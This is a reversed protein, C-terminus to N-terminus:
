QSAKLQDNLLIVDKLNLKSDASQKMVLGEVNVQPNNIQQMKVQSCFNFQFLSESSEDSKAEQFISELQSFYKKISKM